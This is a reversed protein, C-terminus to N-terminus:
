TGSLSLCVREGTPLSVRMAAPGEACSARTFVWQEARSVDLGLRAGDLMKPLVTHHEVLAPLEKYRFWDWEAGDPYSARVYANANEVKGDDLWQLWNRGQPDLWGFGSEATEYLALEQTHYLVARPRGDPAFLIHGHDFDREDGLHRFASGYKGDVFSQLLRELGSRDLGAPLRLPLRAAQAPAAAALAAALVASRLIMTWM